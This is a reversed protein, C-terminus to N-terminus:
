KQQLNKKSSKKIIEPWNIFRSAWEAFLTLCIMCAIGYIIQQQILPM